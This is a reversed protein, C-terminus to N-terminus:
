SGMPYLRRFKSVTRRFQRVSPRKRPNVRSHAFTVFPRIHATRAARLWADTETRQFGVRYFDWPVILRAHRIRLERFAPHSFTTANQDSIAVRYRGEAVGVPLLGILVTSVVVVSRTLAPM